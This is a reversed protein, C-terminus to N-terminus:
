LNIQENKHQDSTWRRHFLAQAEDVLRAVREVGFPKFILFDIGSCIYKSEYFVVSLTAMMAIPVCLDVREIHHIFSDIDLNPIGHDFIVLQHTGYHIKEFCDEARRVLTVNCGLEILICEIMEIETIHNGFLLVNKRSATSLIENRKEAPRISTMAQESIVM